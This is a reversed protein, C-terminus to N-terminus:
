RGSLAGEVEIGKATLRWANPAGRVASANSNENEILGVGALRALLKSIQGQDSIGAGDAIQRNSCGPKAAVAMLVRVTRYTLRMGLERLPDAAKTRVRDSTCPAPRALEDQAPGLGLYPLVILGMLPGCLELPSDGELLRNHLVSLVGGVIGEATLPPLREASASEKRGEEVFAIIRTLIRGRRELAKAGAGLSGIVLLQGVRPELELFSLLNTLTTRLRVVWKAKPDYGDLVYATARGIGEDFAALFCDERDEFMDYFTRRSVGAREVVNAVTVHGAGREGSVEVMAALMRARQIENVRERELGGTGGRGDRTSDLGNPVATSLAVSDGVM